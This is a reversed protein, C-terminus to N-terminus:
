RGSLDVYAGQAVLGDQLRRVDVNRVAGDGRAAMAAALGAAEGTAFCAPMCRVSGQVGRDCSISRGAVLLNTAGKPILARYPIGYHGGPPLTRDGHPHARRKTEAPEPGLVHVDIERGYDAIDDPGKRRALYHDMDMVYEGVIRRTERVGLLGGTAAVFAERCGPAERRLHECLERAQRRGQMVARTLSDADTGDTDVQHKYNFGAARTSRLRNICLLDDPRSLKGARSAAAVIESFPNSRATWDAPLELGALLFCLTTPQTLGAQDGQVCPCGARFAVDADGTADVFVKARWQEPGSKSWSELAAIRGDQLRPRTVTTFLRPAAGCGAVLEDLLGKLQEADIATWDYPPIEGPKPNPKPSAGGRDLLGQLVELGIGRVIPERGDTFCAFLPVMGTTAMGGFAATAELVATRAGARAASIAAAAGAPGGGAVVVDFEHVRPEM